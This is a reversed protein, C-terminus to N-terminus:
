GRPDAAGLPAEALLEIRGRSISVLLQRDAFEVVALRGTAGVPLADLMKLRRERAGFGMGPQAKRWLWLAGFAMGCVLPILVLLKLIYSTM